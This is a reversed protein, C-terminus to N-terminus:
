GAFINKFLFATAESKIFRVTKDFAVSMNPSLYSNELVVNQRWVRSRERSCPISILTLVPFLFFFCVFWHIFASCITVRWFCSPFSGFNVRFGKTKIGSQIRYRQRGWAVRIQARRHHTEKDDECPLPGFFYIWDKARFACVRNRTEEDFIDAIIVKGHRLLTRRAAM